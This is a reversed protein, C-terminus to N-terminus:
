TDELYSLLVGCVINELWVFDRNIRHVIEQIKTKVKDVIEIIDDDPKFYLMEQIVEAFNDGSPFWKAFNKESVKLLGNKIIGEKNNITFKDNFSIPFILGTGSKRIRIGTESNPSVGLMHRYALLRKIKINLEAYKYKSV